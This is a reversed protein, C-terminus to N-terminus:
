RRATRRARVPAHNPACHAAPGPPVAADPVDLLAVGVGPPRHERPRASSPMKPTATGSSAPPAPPLTSSRHAITSSAALASTGPGTAVVASAVRTTARGRAAPRHQRRTFAEGPSASRRHRRREVRVAARADPVTSQHQAGIPRRRAAAARRRCSAAPRCRAAVAHVTSASCAVSKERGSARTTSVRRRGGDSSHRGCARRPDPRSPAPRRPPRAHGAPRELGGDVVGLHALLEALRDAAELGILCMHASISHAGLLGLHGGGVGCAGGASESSRWNEMAAASAALTPMAAALALALSQMWTSPPMPKVQSCSACRYRRRAYPM